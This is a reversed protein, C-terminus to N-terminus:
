SHTVVPKWRPRKLWPKLRGRSLSSDKGCVEKARVLQTAGHQCGPAMGTTRAVSLRRCSSPRDSSSLRNEALKRKRGAGAAACARCSRPARHRTAPPRLRLGPMRGAPSVVAEKRKGLARHGYRSTPITITAVAAFLDARHSYLDMHVARLLVLVSVEKKRSLTLTSLSQRLRFHRRELAQREARSKHAAGGGERWRYDGGAAGLARQEGAGRRGPKLAVQGLGDVRGRIAKARRVLQERGSFGELSLHIAVPGNNPHRGNAEVVHAWQVLVRAPLREAAEM